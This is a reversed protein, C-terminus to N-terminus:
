GILNRTLGPGLVASYFLTLYTHTNGFAGFDLLLFLFGTMTHFIHLFHSDLTNIFIKQYNSMSTVM